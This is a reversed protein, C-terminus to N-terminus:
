KKQRHGLREVNGQEIELVTKVLDRIEAATPSGAIAHFVKNRLGRLRSWKGHELTIIKGQALLADILDKLDPADKSGDKKKVELKVHEIKARERISREFAYCGVLGALDSRVVEWAQALRSLSLESLPEVLNKARLQLMFPDQDFQQKIEPDEPPSTFCKYHLVWLAMDADAARPLKYHNRIARLNSLYHLYTEVADFGRRVSLVQEVPPSLIGFSDPRVFRLIISVLEISRFVKQLDQITQSEKSSSENDRSLQWFDFTMGELKEDVQSQAPLVWFQDFWWHKKNTFYALDQYSIKKKSSSLGRVDDEIAKLKFPWGYRKKSVEEFQELCTHLYSASM